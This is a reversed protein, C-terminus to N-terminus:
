VRDQETLGSEQKQQVQAYCGVFKTVDKNILGWRSSISIQTRDYNTDCLFYEHVRKWFADQKQQNGIIPDQSVNLYGSILLFDEDTSFNQQRGRKINKNENEEAVQSQECTETGFNSPFIQESFEDEDLLMHTYLQSNGSAMLFFSPLTFAVLTLPSPFKLLPSIVM